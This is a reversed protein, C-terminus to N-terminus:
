GHIEVLDKWGDLCRNLSKQVSAARDADGYAIRVRGSRASLKVDAGQLPLKGAIVSEHSVTYRDWEQLCDVLIGLYSLPDETLRLLEIDEPVGFLKPQQQMNHLATAATAWVVGSFWWAPDYRNRKFRQILLRDAAESNPDSPLGFYVRFGSCVGHDLFRTGSGSIGSRMVAEFAGRMWRIRKVMSEIGYYQYHREWLDFADGPLGHTRNLYDVKPPKLPASISAAVASRLADLNGLDRLADAIAALSRGYFQPSNVKSLKHLRERDYVSDIGCQMWFHHEFYDEVVEVGVGVQEDILGAQLPDLSGEFLYGVDHLMSVFPWASRFRMSHEREHGRIVFHRGCEDRVSTSNAYFYWGLLYNHVTHASHDRQKQYAIRGGVERRLLGQRFHDADDMDTWALVLRAYSNAHWLRVEDMTASLFRNLAKGLGAPKQHNTRYVPTVALRALEDTTSRM